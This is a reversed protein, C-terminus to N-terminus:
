AHITVARERSDQRMRHVHSADFEFAEGAKHVLRHPSGSLRFREEIVEGQVVAVAGQSMDHDHFGTDNGNVWSIVWIDIHDDRWLQEFHRESTDFRVLPRWQPPDAAIRTVLDLLQATTLDQAATTTLTPPGALRNDSTM